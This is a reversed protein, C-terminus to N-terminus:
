SWDVGCNVSADKVVELEEELESEEATLGIVGEMVLEELSEPILKSVVFSICHKCAIAFTLSAISLTPNLKSDSQM